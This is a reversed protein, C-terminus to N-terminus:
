QKLVQSVASRILELKVGEEGVKVVIDKEKVGVVTGIIGGSTVIKDGKKLEKLMKEHESQRKQQPRILMFYFLLFMLIIPLFALFQNPQAGDQTQPAALALFSLYHM